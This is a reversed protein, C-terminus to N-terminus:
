PAHEGRVPEGATGKIRDPPAHFTEIRGAFERHTSRIGTDVIYATVGTGTSDYSYRSNLPLSGQDIRDLGWPPDLQTAIATVTMVPEINVVDNRRSLSRHAAAPMTAVFGIIAAEWVKGVHLGLASRQALANRMAEENRFQVIYEDTDVHVPNRETARDLISDTSDADPAVPQSPFRPGMTSPADDTNGPPPSAQAAAPSSVTLLAATTVVVAVAARFKSM